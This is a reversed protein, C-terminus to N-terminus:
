GLWLRYWFFPDGWGFGSGWFPNGWRNGFGFGLGISLGPRFGWAPGWFPDYFGWPSMMMGGFGYGMGFNFNINPNNSGNGNQAVSYNDYANINGTAQQTTDEEFYVVEEEGNSNNDLTQYRSIYEPNVNRSSFNEEILAPEQTINQFSKPNNNDVAYQTALRVDSAMFYLNDNGSSAAM